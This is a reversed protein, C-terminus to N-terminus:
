NKSLFSMDYNSKLRVGYIGSIKITNYQNETWINGNSILKASSYQSNILKCVILNDYYDDAFHGTSPFIHKIKLIKCLRVTNYYLNNDDFHRYELMLRLMANNQDCIKIHAKLDDIVKHRQDNILYIPNLVLDICNAGKRLVSITQQQRASSDSLGYPYDIPCSVIMGKPVISHIKAIYNPSVNIGDFNYEIAKFVSQLVENESSNKSYTDLEHYM